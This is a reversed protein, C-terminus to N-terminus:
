CNFTVMAVFQPGDVFQRFTLEASTVFVRDIEHKLAYYTYLM